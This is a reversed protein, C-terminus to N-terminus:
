HGHIHGYAHCVRDCRFAQQHGALEVDGVPWGSRMVIVPCLDRLGFVNEDAIMSALCSRILM